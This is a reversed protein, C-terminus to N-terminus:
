KKEKSIIVVVGNIAQNGYLSTADNGKLVKVEKIDNPNIKSFQNSNIIDGDLIFLPEKFVSNSPACIVIRKTSTGSQVFNSFVKVDCITDKAKILSKSTTEIESVRNEPKKIITKEQAKSIFCISMSLVLSILKVKKM